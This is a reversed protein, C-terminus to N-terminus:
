PQERNTGNRNTCSIPSDTKKLGGCLLKLADSVKALTIVECKLWDAKCTAGTSGVWRLCRM